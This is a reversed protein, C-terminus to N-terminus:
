GEEERRGRGVREDRFSKNAIADVYKKEAERAIDVKIIPDGWLYRPDREREKRKKVGRARVFFSAAATSCAAEEELPIREKKLLTVNRINTMLM